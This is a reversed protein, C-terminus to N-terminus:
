LTRGGYLSQLILAKATHCNPLSISLNSKTRIACWASRQRWRYAYRVHGHHVQAIVHGLAAQGVLFYGLPNADLAGLQEGAARMLSSKGSGSPGTFLVVDGRRIDLNVGDAVTHPPEAAALGFLDAVRGSALSRSRPRFPYRITIPHM